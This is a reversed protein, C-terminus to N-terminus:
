CRWDITREGQDLLVQNVQSFPHSGFFGRRASLPSPHASSIIRAHPMFTAATQADNGWLVAVLPHQPRADLARLACETVSEWGRKRHSGAHGPQVSLVRNLLLVGQKGWRELVQPDNALTGLDSSLETLINSLSRPIPRTEPSVAFALGIPHGPTPYPDQGLIVVRVKDFPLQFARLLNEPAPLFGRGAEVETQLFEALADLQRQVPGLPVVWSRDILWTSALHELNLTLLTSEATTKRM